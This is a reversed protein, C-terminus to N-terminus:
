TMIKARKAKAQTPGPSLYQGVTKILLNRDVPKMLYGDCGTDLCHQKDSPLSRSTIAIIPGQYDRSRLERCCEYGDMNPMIMDLLVLDFPGQSEFANLAAVGDQVAVVEAGARELLFSLQRRNCPVDEALLVRASIRCENVNSATHLEGSLPEPEQDVDEVWNPEIDPETQSDLELLVRNIHPLHVANSSKPQRSTELQAITSDITAYRHQSKEHQLRAIRNAMREWDSLLQQNQSRMAIGASVQALAQRLGALKLSASVIRMRGFAQCAAIADERLENSLDMVVIVESSGFTSTAQDVCENVLFGTWEADVIVVDPGSSAEDSNPTITTGISLHVVCSDACLWSSPEQTLDRVKAIFQANGSILLVSFESFRSDNMASETQNILM